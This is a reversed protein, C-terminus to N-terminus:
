HDLLHFNKHLVATIKYLFLLMLQLTFAQCGKTIYPIYKYCVRSKYLYM